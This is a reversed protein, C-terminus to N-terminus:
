ADVDDRMARGALANLRLQAMMHTDRVAICSTAIRRTVTVVVVGEGFDM